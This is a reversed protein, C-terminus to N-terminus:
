NLEGHEFCKDTSAVASAKFEPHDKLYSEALHIYKGKDIEGAANIIGNRQFVCETHCPKGKNKEKGEGPEFINKCEVPNLMESSSLETPLQCCKALAFSESGCKHGKHSM